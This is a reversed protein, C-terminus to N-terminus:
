PNPYDFFADRYRMMRLGNIWDTYTQIQKNEFAEQMLWEIFTGKAQDALPFGGGLRPNIEIIQTSNTESEYFAQINLPGWAGPLATSVDRALEVLNPIRETIAQVSEGNEVVIRQHPIACICEGARSVYVNVTYEKGNALAQAIHSGSLEAPTIESACNVIRVGSSASGKAPKIIFPYELELSEVTNHNLLYTKPTPFAHENLFKYTSYKDICVTISELSSIGIQIGHNSFSESEQALELLDDHRSPIVLGIRHDLCYQLTASQWDEQDIVKFSDVFHSTPVNESKDIAHLTIGRKKCSRAVIRTLAVKSGSSLLLVNQM